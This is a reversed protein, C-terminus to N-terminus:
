IIKSSPVPSSGTYVSKCDAVYGSRGDGQNTGYYMDILYELPYRGKVIQNHMIVFDALAVREVETMNDFDSVPVSFYYIRPSKTKKIM